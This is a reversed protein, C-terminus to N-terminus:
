KTLLIVMEELYCNSFEFILLETHIVLTEFLCKITSIETNIVLTESKM